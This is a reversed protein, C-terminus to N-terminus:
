PAIIKFPKVEGNLLSQILCRSFEDINAKHLIADDVQGLRIKESLAGIKMANYIDKQVSFDYDSPRERGTVKCREFFDDETHEDYMFHYVVEGLNVLKQRDYM